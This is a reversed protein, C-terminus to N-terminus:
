GYTTPCKGYANRENGYVCAKQMCAKTPLCLILQIENSFVKCIRSTFSFTQRPGKIKILALESTEKVKMLKEKKPFTYAVGM